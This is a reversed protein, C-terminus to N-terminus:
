PRQGGQAVRASQEFHSLGRRYAADLMGREELLRDLSPVQNDRELVVPVPGKRAVVWELLDVVPDIVDAGHSDITLGDRERWEHGAV